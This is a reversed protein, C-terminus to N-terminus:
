KEDPNFLNESVPIWQLPEIRRGLEDFQIKGTVGTDNTSSLIAKFDERNFGAEVIKNLILRAADYAYAATPSAPKDFTDSYTKCFATGEDGTFYHTNPIMTGDFDAIEFNHNTNEGLATFALYIKALGSLAHVIQLSEEPQAFVVVVESKQDKLKTIVEENFDDTNYSIVVPVKEQNKRVEELFYNIANQSDYAENAIVVIRDSKENLYIDRYLQEAQQINNPVLSYFWPVYAQALTPDGAWASVYVVQTKAIVQEALHANRGDHSGIIAWVNHNFVLDVTQTAGAGWLGEMSRTILKITKEKFFENEGAQKIALEAGQIAETKSSDSLLLGINITTGANDQARVSKSFGNVLLLLSSGVILIKIFRLSGM